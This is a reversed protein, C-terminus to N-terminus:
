FCVWRVMPCANTACFNAVLMDPQGDGNVDAVAVSTAGEGGSDYSVAPLFLSTNAGIAKARVQSTPTAALLFAALLVPVVIYLRKWHSHIRM